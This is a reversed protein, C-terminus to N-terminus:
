FCYFGDPHCAFGQEAPCDSDSACTRTCQSTGDVPHLRCLPADTGCIADGGNAVACSAGLTPSSGCVRTTTEVDLTALFTELYAEVCRGVGIGLCGNDTGCAASCLFGGGPTPLCLGSACPRPAGPDCVEGVAVAAELNDSVCATLLGLGSESGTWIPNGPWGLLGCHTRTETNEDLCDVVGACARFGGPACLTTQGARSFSSEICSSGEPCASCDGALRPTALCIGEQEGIPVFCGCLLTGPTAGDRCGPIFSSCETDRTCPAGLGGVAAECAGGGSCAEGTPCISASCLNTCNGSRLDCAQSGECDPECIKGTGETLLCVNEVCRYGPLCKGQDSCPHGEREDLDLSLSCSVGLFALALFPITLHRM